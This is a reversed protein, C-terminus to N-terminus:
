SIDIYTEENPFVYGLRERAAKEILEDDSDSSLMAKLEDIDNQKQAALEYNENLEAKADSLEGYLGILNAIFYGCVALVLLRLIVSKNSKRKM